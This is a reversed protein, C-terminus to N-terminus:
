SRSQLPMRKLREQELNAILSRLGAIEDRLRGREDGSIVWGQARREARALDKRAQELGSELDQVEESRRLDPPLTELYASRRAARWMGWWVVTLFAVPLAVLYFVGNGIGSSPKAAAAKLCAVTAAANGLCASFLLWRAPPRLGPPGRFAVLVAAVPAAVFLMFFWGILDGPLM